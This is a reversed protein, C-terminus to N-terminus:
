LLSVMYGYQGPEFNRHSFKPFWLTKANIEEGCFITQFYFVIFIFIENKCKKSSAPFSSKM